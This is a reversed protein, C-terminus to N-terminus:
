PGAESIRYTQRADGTFAEDNIRINGSGVAGDACRNGLAQDKFFLELVMTRGDASLGGRGEQTFGPYTAIVDFCSADPAVNEILIATSAFELSSSLTDHDCVGETGVDAAGELTGLESRTTWRGGLPEITVQHYCQTAQGLNADGSYGNPHSPIDDGRMLLRKGELFANVKAANCDTCAAAPLGGGADPTAGVRVQADAEGTAGTPNLYVDGPECGAFAFAAVPLLSLSVRRM